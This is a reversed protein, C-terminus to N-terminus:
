PEHDSVIQLLPEVRRRRARPSRSRASVILARMLRTAGAITMASAMQGRADACCGGRMPGNTTSRWPVTGANGLSEGASAALRSMVAASNGTVAEADIARRM